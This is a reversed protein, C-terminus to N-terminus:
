QTRNATSSDRAIRMSYQRSRFLSPLHAQVTSRAHPPSALPSGACAITVTSARAAIPYGWVGDCDALRRGADRGTEPQKPAKGSQSAFFQVSRNPRGYVSDLIGASESFTSLSRVRSKKEELKEEGEM